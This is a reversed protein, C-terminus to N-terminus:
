ALAEKFEGFMSRLFNLIEAREEDSISEHDAQTFKKVGKYTDKIYEEYAVKYKGDGLSTESIFKVYGESGEPLRARKHLSKWTAEDVRCNHKSWRMRWGEEATPLDPNEDTWDYEEGLLEAVVIVTKRGRSEIAKWIRNKAANDLTSEINAHKDAVTDFLDYEGDSSVQINSCENEFTRKYRNPDKCLCYLCNYVIRYIYSPTFRKEDNKIIAVNKQLYQVVEDVGDCESSYPAKLKHWALTIQEFFQCYLVAAKHDDIVNLWEEYSLPHKYQTYEIFMERTAYFESKKSM